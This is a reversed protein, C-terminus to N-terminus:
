EEADAAGRGRGEKRRGRGGGRGRDRDWRRGKDTSRHSRPAIPTASPSHPPRRPLHGTDVEEPLRLRKEKSTSHGKMRFLCPVEVIGGGVNGVGEGDEVDGRAADVEHAMGEGREGGQM